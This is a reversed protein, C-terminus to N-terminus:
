AHNFGELIFIRRKGDDSWGQRALRMDMGTNAAVQEMLAKGQEMASRAELPVSVRLWVDPPREAGSTASAAAAPLRIEIIKLQAIGGVGVVLSRAKEVMSVQARADDLFFRRQQITDILGSNLGGKGTVIPDAVEREYFTTAAHYESWGKGIAGGCVLVGAAVLAAPTLRGGGREQAHLALPRFVLKHFLESGLYAIQPFHEGFPALPAAQVVKYGPKQLAYDDLLSALMAQFHPVSRAPLSKNEYGVFRGEEFVFVDLTTESPGEAGGILLVKGRSALGWRLYADIALAFRVGKAAAQVVAQDVAVHVRPPDKALWGAVGEVGKRPVLKLYGAAPVDRASVFVAAGVLLAKNRAVGALHASSSVFSWPAQVRRGKGFMAM